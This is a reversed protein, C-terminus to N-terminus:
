LLIDILGGVGIYHADGGVPARTGRDRGPGTRATIGTMARGNPLIRWTVRAAIDDHAGTEPALDSDPKFVPQSLTSIDPPVIPSVDQGSGASSIQTDSTGDTYSIVMRRLGGVISITRSAETKTAPGGDGAFAPAANLLTAFDIAVHAANTGVPGSAEHPTSSRNDAKIAGVSM